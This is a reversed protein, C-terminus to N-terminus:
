NNQRIKAAKQQYKLAENENNLGSFAIYFQEYFNAELEANEIVFDIGINLVTLAENYKQLKNLALANIYYLFPQAPFLEIGTKSDYYVLEYNGNALEITLIENLLQFSKNANFQIRLNELDTINNQKNEQTSFNNSKIKRQELYEKYAKTSSSFLGNEEIITIINEAKDFQQNQIYLLVLDDSYKLNLHMLQQQTQIASEFNLQAKFIAVKQALLYVNQPEKQLAKDIFIESEFYNKLELYNKSFEFEVALNNPKIQYCIELNEIAKQFNNIAYDKLAEFFHEQFKLSNEEAIDKIQANLFGSVLLIAITLIKKYFKIEM